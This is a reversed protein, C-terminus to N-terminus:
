SMEENLKIGQKEERPFNSSGILNNSSIPNVHLGLFGTEDYYPSCIWRDEAAEQYGHRHSQYLFGSHWERLENQSFFFGTIHM